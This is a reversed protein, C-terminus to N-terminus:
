WTYGATHLIHYAEKIRQNRDMGDGYCSVDPCFWYRNGSPVISNMRTGYKQLIRSMIFEKDVLVAVAKRLNVDKFPLTRLNFGM